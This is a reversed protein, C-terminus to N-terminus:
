QGDARRGDGDGDGDSGGPAATLAALVAAVDSTDHDRCLRDSGDRYRVPCARAPCRALPAATTTVTVTKRIMGARPQPAAPRRRTNRQIAAAAALARRWHDRQAAREDATSM